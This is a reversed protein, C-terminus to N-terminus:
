ERSGELGGGGREGRKWGLREFGRRVAASKSFFKWVLGTRANEICLLLPGQDIAVYDPAVWPGADGGAGLNVADRFGYERAGPDVGRWVLPTGDAAKLDRFHRLAAVARGPTFLIASGAAYPALTGDGYDDTGPHDAFDVNPVAGPMPLPEPFLGPVAYGSPADSASLGWADKGFTPLKLPNAEAKLQHMRAHRRANEWWDVPARNKQGFSAPDDTGVHAYDIWCHAFFSTFLAGSWPFWVVPGTDKHSGLRRRLRYYVSPDVANGPKAAAVALFTVLRQEDGADAWVFPLLEGRGTLNGKDDPKFGLSIFGREYARDTKDLVFAAWDADSVMDDALRKVTAGFYEGATIMGSFLIASDITSVVHEYAGRYPGADDPDLYHFFLGDRRNARNNALSKLIWEARARAEDKTVWKREVGIPLASLQFGVGAISAFKVSTRDVVLGTQPSIEHWFFEFCGRQVDDLFAEDTRSFDFPPRRVDGAAEIVVDPRPQPTGVGACRGQAGFFSLALLLVVSRRTMM